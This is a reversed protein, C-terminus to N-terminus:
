RNVDAVSIELTPGEPSKPTRAVWQNLRVMSPPSSRRVVPRDETPSQTVRGDAKYGPDLTAPGRYSAGKPKIPQDKYNEPNQEPVFPDSEKRNTASRNDSPRRAQASDPTPQLTIASSSPGLPAYSMQTGIPVHRVVTRPVHVTTEVDEYTVHNVAVQRTTRQAVMRTVNYTVQKSCQVAVRRTVPVTQVITQPIFERRVTHSPVFMSRFEYATRNLWGVATRRNDYECPSPRYIPQIHTQWYGGNRAVQHYETVDQYTTYPVEATRQETVPVYEIVDQNVIRAEVKPRRVVQKVPHYETVPVAQYCSHVVPQMVTQCAVASVSMSRAPGCDCGPGLIQAHAQAAALVGWVACWATFRSPFRLM